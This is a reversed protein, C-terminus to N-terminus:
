FFNVFGQIVQEDKAGCKGCVGKMPLKVSPMNEFFKAMEGFQEMTLSDVFASIESDRYESLDYINEDDFIKTMCILMLQKIMDQENLDIVSMMKKASPVELQVKLDKSLEIRGDTDPKEVEIKSIDVKCNLTGDCGKQRCPYQVDQTEGVSKARVNMFLFEIDTMPLSDIKFDAETVSELMHVLSDFILDAKSDEKVMLMNRQEKVLFPRFKIKKGTIPLVVSHQPASQIPLQM